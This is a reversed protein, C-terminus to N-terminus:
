EEKDVGAAEKLRQVILHKRKVDESLHEYSTTERVKKLTEGKPETIKMCVWGFGTFGVLYVVCKVLPGSM